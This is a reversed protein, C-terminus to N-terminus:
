QYFDNHQQCVEDGTAYLIFTQSLKVVKIAMKHLLSSRFKFFVSLNNIYLTYFPFRHVQDLNVRNQGILEQYNFFQDYLLIMHYKLNLQHSPHLELLKSKM